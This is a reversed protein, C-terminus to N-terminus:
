KGKEEEKFRKQEQCLEVEAIAAETRAIAAEVGEKMWEIFRVLEEKQKKTLNKPPPCIIIRENDAESIEGKGPMTIMGNNDRETTM